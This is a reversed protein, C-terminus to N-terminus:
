QLQNIDDYSLLQLKDINLYNFIENLEKKNDDFSHSSNNIHIFLLKNMNYIIKWKYDINTTKFICILLTCNFHQILYDRLKNIENNNYDVDLFNTDYDPHIFLCFLTKINNNKLKKLREFCRDFHDKDKINNLNHHPLFANHYSYEINDPDYNICKHITRYGYKNNLNILYNNNETYIFDNYNFGNELFNIVNSINSLYMADFVCSFKKFGMNKLYIETFCRTGVSILCKYQNM